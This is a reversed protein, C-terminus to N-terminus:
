FSEGGGFRIYVEAKEITANRREQSEVVVVERRERDRKVCEKEQSDCVMVESTAKM